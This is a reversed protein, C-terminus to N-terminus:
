RVYLESRVAMVLFAPLGFGTFSAAAGRVGRLRLGVYACSQMATAGPVPKGGRDAAPQLDPDRAKREPAVVDRSKM